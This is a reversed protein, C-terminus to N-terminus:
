GSIIRDLYEAMKEPLQGADDLYQRQQAAERRVAEARDELSLDPDGSGKGEFPSGDIQNNSPSM